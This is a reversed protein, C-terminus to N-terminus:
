MDKHLPNFHNEETVGSSYWALVFLIAAHLVTCKVAKSYFLTVAPLPAM